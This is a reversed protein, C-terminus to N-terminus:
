LIFYCRFMTAIQASNVQSSFFPCLSIIRHILLYQIPPLLMRSQSMTAMHIFLSKVLLLNKGVKLLKCDGIVDADPSPRRFFNINLNTTVVLPNFGIEGLIAIYLAADAVMMMFPGSVTGGPRLYESSVSWRIRARKDGVEEIIIETKPFADSIFERLQVLNM